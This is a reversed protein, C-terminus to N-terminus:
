NSQFYDQPSFRLTTIKLGAPYTICFAYVCQLCQHASSRLKANGFCWNGVNIRSCVRLLWLLILAWECNQHRSAYSRYAFVICHLKLLLLRILVNFRRPNLSRENKSIPDMRHNHAFQKTQAILSKRNEPRVFVKPSM